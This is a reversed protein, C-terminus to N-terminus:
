PTTVVKKGVEKVRVAGSTKDTAVTKTSEQAQQVIAQEQAKNLEDGEVDRDQIAAASRRADKSAAISKLTDRTAEQADLSIVGSLDSKALANKQEDTIVAEKGSWWKENPRATQLMDLPVLFSAAKNKNNDVLGPAFFFRLGRATIIYNSPSLETASVVVPLLKSKEKAYNSEIARACLMAALDSNEFLESFKILKNTEKNFNMTEVLLIEDEGAIKQKFISFLTLVPDSPQSYFSMTVFQESKVRHESLSFDDREFPNEEDYVINIHSVMDREFRRAYYNVLRTCISRLNDTECQKPISVKTVSFSREITLIKRGKSAANEAAVSSTDLRANPDINVMKSQQQKAQAQDQSKAEIKVDNAAQAKDYKERAVEQAKDHAEEAEHEKKIEAIAEAREKKSVPIGFTKKNIEEELKKLEEAKQADAQQQSSSKHLIELNRANQNAFASTPALSLACVGLGLVMVLAATKLANFMFLHNKVKFFHPTQAELSAQQEKALPEIFIKDM